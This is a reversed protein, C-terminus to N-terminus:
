GNRSFGDFRRMLTLTSMPFDHRYADGTYYRLFCMKTSPVSTVHESGWVGSM